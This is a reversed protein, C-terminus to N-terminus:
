GMVATVKVVKKEKQYPVVNGGTKVGDVYLERIGKEAGGTKVAIEYRVGRCIRSVTFDGFDKPVCPDIM